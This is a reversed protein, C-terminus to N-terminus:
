GGDCHPVYAAKWDINASHTFVDIKNEKTDGTDPVNLLELLSDYYSVHVSRETSPMIRLMKHRTVM